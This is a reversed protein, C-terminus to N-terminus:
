CLMSRLPIGQARALHTLPVSEQLHPRLLAFRELALARQAESLRTFHTSPM